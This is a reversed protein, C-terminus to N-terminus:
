INWIYVNMNNIGTRGYHMSVEERQDENVVYNALLVLGSNLNQTGYWQRVSGLNDSLFEIAVHTGMAGNNAVVETFVRYREAVTKYGVEEVTGVSTQIFEMLLERNEICAMGVIMRQREIPNQGFYNSQLRWWVGHYEDDTVNRMAACMVIEATNQHPMAPPTRQWEKFQSYVEDRCKQLGAKCAWRLLNVRNHKANITEDVIEYSGTADYLRVM